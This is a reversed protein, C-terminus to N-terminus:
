FPGFTPDSYQGVNVVECQTRVAHMANGQINSHAFSTDRQSASDGVHVICRGRCRCVLARVNSPSGVVVRLNPLCRLLCHGLTRPFVGHLMLFLGEWTLAGNVMWRYQLLTSADGSFM